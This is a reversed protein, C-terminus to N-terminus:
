FTVRLSHLVRSNRKSTDWNPVADVLRLKPLRKVATGVAIAAETRALGAGVCFHIGQGFAIHRNKQRQIDFTEPDTFYAPDRNASNLMQFVMQGKQLLKGGVEADQKMIRPQRSVPSEYRLSEEVASTLLAPNQQLLGLQPRHSLLLFMMNSILSITTEHGAMFLTVCTSVLEIESVREGTAEAAVFKSMLDQRPKHRREEIMGTIYPRMEVIAQQARSLDAESPKNVGQFSHIADAWRRFLHRDSPPVGLIEAIVGVPLPSALDTVIDLSGKVLAADILGDVVEQIRPRMQEVVGTTFEKTVLTRMRTHDPPDSHLLSKTAYHDAFPKYNARKEPTLYAIAQGLRNENSYSATDKFSTLIDDYRTLLWGGISDSWYVPQEERLQRLVAYPDSIFEPSVLTTELDPAFNTNM